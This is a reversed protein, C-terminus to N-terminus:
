NSAGDKDFRYSARRRTRCQWGSLRLISVLVPSLICRRLTQALLAYRALRDAEGEHSQEVGVDFVILIKPIIPNRFM